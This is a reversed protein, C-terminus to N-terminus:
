PASAASVLEIEHIFVRDPSRTRLAEAAAAVHRHHTFVVIQTLDSAEALLELIRDVRDDDFNVLGDDIVLPMLEHGDAQSECLAALRMALYMQDRTGESMREIPVATDADRLGFLQNDGQGIGTFASGTIRRFFESARTVIPSASAEQFRRIANDLIHGALRLPVYREVDRVVRAQVALCEEMLRAARDSDFAEAKQTLQRVQEESTQLAIAQTHEDRDIEEFLRNLEDEDHRLCEELFAQLGEGPVLQALKGENERVDVEAARREAVRRAVELAADNTEARALGRLRTVEVLAEDRTRAAAAEDDLCRDHREKAAQRALFQQHQAAAAARLSVIQDALPRDDPAQGLSHLIGRLQSNAAELSAEMRAVDAELQSVENMLATISTMEEIMGRVLEPATDEAQRIATMRDAWRARWDAMRQLARDRAATREVLLQEANRLYDEQQRRIGAREQRDGVADAAQALLTKQDADEDPSVGLDGLLARLAGLDRAAQEDLEQLKAVLEAELSRAEVLQRHADLWARMAAPEGPAVDIEAWHSRWDAEVAERQRRLSALWERHRTLSATAERHDTLAQNREHVRAANTLLTDAIADAQISADALQALLDATGAPVVAGDEVQARVDGLLADRIQRQRPLADAAPLDAQAMLDQLQRARAAVTTEADHVSRTAEALRQDLATFRDGFDRIEEPSPVLRDEIPPAESLVGTLRGRAATARARAQSLSATLEGRRQPLDARSQLDQLRRAFPRGDFAAGTEALARRSADVASQQNALNEEASEIQEGLARHDEILAAVQARAPGGLVAQLPADAADPRGIAHLAERIRRRLDGARAQKVPLDAICDRIGAVRGFLSEIEDHRTVHRDDVTIGELDTRAKLTAQSAKELGVSARELARDADDFRKAFDEPLQPLDASEALIQRGHRVIRAPALGQQVRILKTRHLRLEDIAKTLDAARGRERDRQEITARAAAPPTIAGRYTAHADRLTQIRQNLTRAGGVLFMKAADQRLREAIRQLQDVGSSAAFVARGIDGDGARIEEAGQRIRDSNFGYTARFTEKTLDGLFDALRNPEFSADSDAQLLQTRSRRYSIREITGSALRRSLTAGIRTLAPDFGLPSLQAPLGFLAYEIGRLCLSKGAENPGYVVHLGESGGALSLRHNGLPGYARMTLEELRM